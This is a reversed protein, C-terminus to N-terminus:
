PFASAREAPLLPPRLIMEPKQLDHAEEVQSDLFDTVQLAKARVKQSPSFNGIMETTRARSKSWPHAFTKQM